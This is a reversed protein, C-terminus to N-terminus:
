LDRRVVYAPSPLTTPLGRRERDCEKEPSLDAKSPANGRRGTMVSATPAANATEPPEAKALGEPAETAFPLAVNAAFPLVREIVLVGPAIMLQCCNEIPLSSIVRQMWCCALLATSLRTVLWFGDVM